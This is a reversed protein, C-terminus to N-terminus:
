VANNKVKPLTLLLTKLFVTTERPNKVHIFKVHKSHTLAYDNGGEMGEDGVYVVKADKDMDKIIDDLAKLKADGSKSIDITTRGTPRVYYDPGLYKQILISLPKRYENDIPKISITANNRNQIKSINFGLEELTQIINKIDAESIISQKHVCGLPTKFVGAEIPSFDEDLRMSQYGVSYKNIGGDAYLMIDGYYKQSNIRYIGTTFISSDVKGHIFDLNISKESNGTIINVGLNDVKSLEWLMFKNTQSEEYHENNRGVITDDYDFVYTYDYLYPKYFANMVAWALSEPQHKKDGVKETLSYVQFKINPMDDQKSKELATFSMEPSANKNFIFKVDKTDIYNSLIKIMENVDVGTMDKDQVNNIISFVNKNQYAKSAAFAQEFGYSVYTPILSSWQTGSSLVIIDASKVADTARTTFVPLRDVGGEDVLKIDVIKDDPNNWDVIDGEDLITHGSKTIAQLFLSEDSSPIVADEEIRLLKAMERGAADMSYNYQAALGAYIINSISFDSYTIQRSKPFSFYTKIAMHAVAKFEANGDEASSLKYLENLCYEEAKEAPCDFRIDMFKYVDTIGHLLSHRLTQNKRLDSPGLIKGDMVQRVAGTSKGNDFLNTIVTVDINNKYLRRLGSQLAVSGTGGSFIVLKM